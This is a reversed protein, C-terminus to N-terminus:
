PVAKLAKVKRLLKESRMPQGRSFGSWLKLDLVYLTPPQKTPNPKIKNSDHETIFLLTAESYLGLTQIQVLGWLSMEFAHANLKTKTYM